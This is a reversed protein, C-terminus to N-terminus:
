DNDSDESLKKLGFHLPNDDLASLSNVMLRTILLCALVSLVIGIILTIAFGKLASAGFIYIIIAGLVTTINGDLIAATARKFGNTVSTEMTKGKGTQYEDKIREFVIIDGDVAMGISIIIGAIGPLTLQVWPFIALFFLMVVTYLSLSIAAAVGLLRYMLILFVFILALGIAGALIGGSLAKDGLTASIVNSDILTPTIAFAGAKIQVALESASEYTYNGTIIAQTMASSQITAAILQEDDVYIYLTKQYLDTTAQQFVTQGDKNFQLAIAYNDNDDLTVYANELLSGTLKTGKYEYIVIDGDENEFRFDLDVPNGILDFIEEPDDVDPVEVRIHTGNEITVVAETYGESFLLSEMSSAVGKLVDDFEEVGESDFDYVAYVGGKLDLGLKILNPYAKLDYVGLQGDDLSVFAGVIGLVIVLSVIVIAVIAKATSMKKNM